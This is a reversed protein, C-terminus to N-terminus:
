NENAKNRDDQIYKKVSPINHFKGYVEGVKESYAFYEKRTKLLKLLAGVERKRVICVVMKKTSHSYMGEVQIATVGRNLNKIIEDSLEEAKDTIIEFKYGNRGGQLIYDSIFDAIFINMLTAILSNMGTDYVFLTLFVVSTDMAFSLWAISKEPYFHKIIASIAFTGGSAGFRRLMLAFGFGSIVGVGITAFMLNNGSQFLPDGELAAYYPVEFETHLYQFFVMLGSQFIMNVILMVGTRKSVFIAALIFIPLNLVILLISMYQAIDESGSTLTALLSAIGMVGGPAFDNYNSFFYLSASVCVASIFCIFLDFAILKLTIKEKPESSSM